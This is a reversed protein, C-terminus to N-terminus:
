RAFPIIKKRTDKWWDSWSVWKLCQRIIQGFVMSFILYLWLWAQWLFPRDFLSVHTSWPVTFYFYELNGLFFRLWMFIPVIFIFLFFMPKMMGSSAETQRRMIQPQLKMLKNVRNTNGEKRAKQMEKQFAKTVEQSEGMKKWDTFLNQFFSSLTVVITGALILTLVPFSGNFGIIPYFITDLSIALFSSIGPDGFIFLMVFMLLMLLLLQNSQGKTGANDM